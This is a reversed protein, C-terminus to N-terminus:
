FLQGHQLKEFTEWKLFTNIGNQMKNSPGYHNSVFRPAEEKLSEFYFMLDDHTLARGVENLWYRKFDRISKLAQKHIAGTHKNTIVRPNDPFEQHYTEIFEVPTLNKSFSNCSSSEASPPPTNNIKPEEKLNLPGFDPETRPNIEPETFNQGLNIEPETFYERNQVYMLRMVPIQKQKGKYEGTYKILGKQILIKRNEKITNKNLCTDAVLRDLSPWCENKEGARDALALLLLKQTATIQEKSLKWTAITADVSM